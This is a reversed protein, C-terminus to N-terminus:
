QVRRLYNNSLLGVILAIYFQHAGLQFSFSGLATIIFVIFSIALSAILFSSEKSFVSIIQWMSLVLLGLGIFGTNYIFELFDNHAQRFISNHQEPFVYPFRGLGLGTISFDQKNIIGNKIDKIVDKWVSIRGNSKDDIFHRFKEVNLYNYCFVITLIFFILLTFSKSIFKFYFLYLIIMIFCAALAMDSETILVSVFLIFSSIYKKLYISIPIIFVLFSAVLTSNGLTGGVEPRTVSGLENISKQIYFQDFGIRQLIVYISMIVAVYVMIKLAYDFKDFSSAITIVLLLMCIVNCFAKWFWFDSSDIGNLFLEVKPSMFFSIMLYSTLILLWKNDFKLIKGEFIALLGITLSFFMALLLKPERTEPVHAIAFPFIRIIIEYFPIMVLALIILLKQLNISM